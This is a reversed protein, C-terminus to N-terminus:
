QYGRPPQLQASPFLRGLHRDCFLIMGHVAQLVSVACFCAIAHPGRYISGCWVEDAPVATASSFIQLLVKQLVKSSIKIEKKTIEQQKGICIGKRGIVTFLAYMFAKRYAWSM